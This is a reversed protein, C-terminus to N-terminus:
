SEQFSSLEFLLLFPWITRLESSSLPLLKTMMTARLAPILCWSIGVADTVEMVLHDHVEPAPQSSRSLPTM